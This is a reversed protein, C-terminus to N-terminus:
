YGSDTDWISFIAAGGLSHIREVIRPIPYFYWIIVANLKSYEVCFPLTVDKKRTSGTFAAWETQVLKIADMAM